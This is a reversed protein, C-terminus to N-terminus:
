KTPDRHERHPATPQLEGVRTCVRSRLKAPAGVAGGGTSAQDARRTPTPPHAHTSRGAGDQGARRREAGGAGEDPHHGRPCLVSTRQAKTQQTEASGRRGRGSWLAAKRILDPLWVRARCVRTWAASHCHSSVRPGGLEGFRQNEPKSSWTGEQGSPVSIRTHTSRPTNTLTCACESSLVSRGGRQLSSTKSGTACALGAPGHGELSDGTGAGWLAVTKRGRPRGAEAESRRSCACASLASELSLRQEHSGPDVKEKKM